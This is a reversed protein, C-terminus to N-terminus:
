LSSLNKGARYTRRKAKKKGQVIEEERRGDAVGVREGRWGVGQGFEKFGLNEPFARIFKDLWHLIKMIRISQLDMRGFTMNPM